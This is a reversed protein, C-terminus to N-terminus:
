SAEDPTGRVLEIAENVQEARVARGGSTTIEATIGDPRTIRLRLRPKRMHLWATLCTTLATFLEMSDLVLRIVEEAGLTDPREAGPDLHKRASRLEDDELLASYLSHLEEVDDEAESVTVVLEM